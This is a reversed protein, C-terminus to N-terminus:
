IINNFTGSEILAKVIVLDGPGDVNISREWPMEFLIPHPFAFGGFHEFDRLTTLYIAGNRQYLTEYKQRGSSQKSQVYAESCGSEADMRYMVNPHRIGDVRCVSVLPRFSNEIFVDWAADLDRATRLPTTPQALLIVDPMASGEKKRFALAHRVVDDTSANDDALESPRPLAMVGDRHRYRELLEQDDTTLLVEGVCSAGLVARITYEVLQEGAVLAKNKGPVGKSGARAPVIALAKNM